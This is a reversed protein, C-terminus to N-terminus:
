NRVRVLAGCHMCTCEGCRLVNVVSSAWRDMGWIRSAHPYESDLGEFFLRKGCSQCRIVTALVLYALALCVFVALLDATVSAEFPWTGRLSPVQALSFQVILVAMVGWAAAVLWAAVVVISASPHIPEDM